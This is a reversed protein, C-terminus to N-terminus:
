KSGKKEELRAQIKKIADAIEKRINEDLELKNPLAQIEVLANSDGIEGFTKILERLSLGAQVRVESNKDEKLAKVVLNLIQPDTSYRLVHVLNARFTENTEYIGTLVKIAQDGGIRALGEAIDFRNLELTDKKISKFVEALVPVAKEDRIGGLAVAAMSYGQKLTEILIETSRKDGIKGLAQIISRYRMDKMKNKQLEEILVEVARSDRIEGLAHAISRRMKAENKFIELLPEVTDPDQLYGLFGAAVERNILRLEKNNIIEMMYPVARKDMKGKTALHNILEYDPFQYRKMACRTVAEGYIKKYESEINGQDDNNQAIILVGSLLLFSLSLISTLSNITRRITITSM